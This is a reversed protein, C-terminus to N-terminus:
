LKFEVGLWLKQRSAFGTVGDYDAYKANISIRPTIQAAAQLDLEEGLDAGTLEAEFDHYRASLALNSFRAFTLPAKYTLTLNADEIGAAPTTLFVDAWGQFAHLTALPTHFGRAGDGDLVEYAGRLAFAGLSGILEASWYELEYDGPNDGNDEQIAYTAAWNLGVDGVKGRGAARVGFTTTSLAPAEEFDLAYVFATPTLLDSIPLTANVLWSESEFDLDEAFVRNVQDLYAAAVRLKGITLDTRVADFTQEDQRWGVSGVFRQDDFVIRQRGLTASFTKAPTWAVQLRNLETVEPDAIVPFPEAPPVGDNYGGALQRVDEFEILGKLNRWPATEWGFRTRITLAEADEAFGVQEVGEYRARLELIPEGAAIAEALTQAAAGQASALALLAAAGCLGPRLLGM